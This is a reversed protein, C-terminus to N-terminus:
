VAREAAAILRSIRSVSLGLEGALATMSVGGEVHARYLALERSASSKLWDNWSKSRLPRNPRVGRAAAKMRAAFAADGLFIQGQVRGALLDFGPDSALLRAYREGASRRQAATQAPKGLLFAHLGAVDLWAPADVAGVHAAASSATWDAASRVLGAQQPALDVARCADLLHQERDVLLAKFRGQFLAGSGGHRRQHHQTYVGNLHRMLRSLNAQRTFLLLEYRNPLLAYALAQADFRQVAQALLELMAAHDTADAFAVGSGTEPCHASVLYVAGPIELRLPRAM